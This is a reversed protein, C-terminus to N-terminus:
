FLKQSEMWIRTKEIIVGKNLALMKFRSCGILLQPCHFGFLTYFSQWTRLKNVMKQDFLSCYNCYKVRNNIM